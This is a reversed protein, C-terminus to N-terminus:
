RLQKRVIVDFYINVFTALIASSRRDGMTSSRRTSSPRAHASNFSFCDFYDSRESIAKRATKMFAREITYRMPVAQQQGGNTAGKSSIAPACTWVLPM